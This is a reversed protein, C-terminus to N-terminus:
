NGLTQRKYIQQFNILMLIGTFIISIIWFYYGYGFSSTGSVADDIEVNVGDDNEYYTHSFNSYFVIALIGFLIQFFGIFGQNFVVPHLYELDNLSQKSIRYIIYALIIGTSLITLVAAGKACTLYQCELNSMNIGCRLKTTVNNTQQTFLGYSTGQFSVWSPSGLAIIAFIFGISSLTIQVFDSQLTNVTNNYSKM